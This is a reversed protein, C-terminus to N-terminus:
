TTITYIYTHINFVSKLRFIFQVRLIRILHVCAVKWRPTYVRFPNLKESWRKRALLISTFLTLFVHGRENFVPLSCCKRYDRSFRKKLKAEMETPNKEENKKGSGPVFPFCGSYSFFRFFFFPRMLLKWIGV